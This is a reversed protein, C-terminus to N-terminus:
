RAVGDSLALVFRTPAPLAAGFGDFITKFTPVVGILLDLRSRSRFCCCWSLIPSPPACDPGNRRRRARSRRRSPRARGAVRGGSRRGFGVPLVARRIRAPHQALAASFPVGRTIDRALARSSARCDAARDRQWGAIRARRRAAPGRAAPRRTTTHLRTVDATKAKPPPAAGLTDLGTVIVGERRLSARASARDAAIIKGQKPRAKPTWAAGPSACKSCM